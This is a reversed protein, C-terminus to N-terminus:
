EDYKAAVRLWKGLSEVFAEGMTEEVVCDQWSCSVMLDGGKAAAVSVQFASAVVNACMIFHAQTIEWDDEKDSRGDFAGINTVVWGTKRPRKAEEKLQSRWDTVARAFGNMDNYLGRELKEDLEERIRRACSWVTPMLDLNDLPGDHISAKARVSSTLEQTFVHTQITVYNNMARSPAFWPHDKPNSPLFRRIDMATMSEFASAITSDLLQSLTVFILSHLLGTVTTRHHRCAILLHSLAGHPVTVTRFQTKFPAPPPAIPAWHAQTPLTTPYRASPINVENDLYWQLAEPDVPFDVLSEAPPTFKAVSSISITLIHDFLPLKTRIQKSQRLAELLETHFAKAGSGDMITHNFVLSAEMYDTTDQHFLSLRWGPVSHLNIFREDLQQNIIARLVRSVDQESEKVHYWKLHTSLDISDLRVFFPQDTDDGAIGVQMHPHELVACAVAQEFTDMLEQRSEFNSLQPPIRYRFGISNGRMYDLKQLALQYSEVCGLKRVMRVEPKPLQVAQDTIKWGAIAEPVVTQPYRM